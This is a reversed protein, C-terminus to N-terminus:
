LSKWFDEDPHESPDHKRVDHICFDCFSAGTTLTQRRTLRFNPNAKRFAEFDYHCAISYAYDLDECERLIENWKCRKVKVGARGDPRVYETMDFSGQFVEPWPGNVSLVSSPESPREGDPRRRTNEDVFERWLAMAERKALLAELSKAQYYDFHLHPRLIEFVTRRQELSEEPCEEYNLLRLICATSAEALEQDRKYLDHKKIADLLAPKLKLLFNKDAYTSLLQRKWVDADLDNKQLFDLLAATQDLKRFLNPEIRYAVTADPEYKSIYTEMPNTKAFEAGLPRTRRNTAPPRRRRLRALRWGRLRVLRSACGFRRFMANGMASMELRAFIKKVPNGGAGSPGYPAKKL